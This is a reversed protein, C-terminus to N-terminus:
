AIRLARRVLLVNHFYFWFGIAFPIKDRQTFHHQPEVRAFPTNMGGPSKLDPFAATLVVHRATELSTEPQIGGDDGRQSIIGDAAEDLIKDKLSAHVLRVQAPDPIVSNAALHSIPQIECLASETHSGCEATRIATM